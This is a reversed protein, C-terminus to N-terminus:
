RVVDNVAVPLQMLLWIYILGLQGDYMRDM